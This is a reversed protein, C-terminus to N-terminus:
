ERHVALITGNSAHEADDVLRGFPPASLFGLSPESRDNCRAVVRDEAGVEVHRNLTPVLPCFTETAVSGLFRDAM